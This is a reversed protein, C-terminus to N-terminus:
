PNLSEDGFWQLYKEKEWEIHSDLFLYNVGESHRDAIQEHNWVLANNADMMVIFSQLSSKGRGEIIIRSFKQTGAYKMVGWPDREYRQTNWTMGYQALSGSDDNKKKSPCKYIESEVNESSLYDSIHTFWDDGPGLWAPPLHDRNDQAYLRIALDLQKLNAQCIIKKAQEKMKGLAPMLISLLLAIISIVILLEILTFGRKRMSMKLGRQFLPSPEAAKGLM